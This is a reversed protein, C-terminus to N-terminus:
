QHPSTGAPGAQGTGAAPDDEQEEQERLLWPRVTVVSEHPHTENLHAQVALDEVPEGSVQV